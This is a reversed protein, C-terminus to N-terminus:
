KNSCVQLKQVGYIRYDCLTHLSVLARRVELVNIMAARGIPACSLPDGDNQTCHNKYPKWVRVPALRFVDGVFVGDTLHEAAGCRWEGATSRTRREATRM